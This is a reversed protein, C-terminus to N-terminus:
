FKLKKIEEETLETAKCIINIAINEKLLKKAIELKQKKEGKELGIKEGKELGIKEGKQLGLKEGKELGIKEGVDLGKDYIAKEDMIAKERLEAIRQMREDESLSDLKEVVEKLEENEEM